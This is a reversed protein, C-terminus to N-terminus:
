RRAPAVPVLLGIFLGLVAGALTGLPCTYLIGLMPGQPLDPQLLIPGVFGVLFSVAGVGAATWVCWRAATRGRGPPGNFLVGVVYGAVAGLLGLGLSPLGSSDVGLFNLIFSTLAGLAFGALVGVVSGPLVWSM